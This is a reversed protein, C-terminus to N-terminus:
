HWTITNKLQHIKLHFLRMLDTGQALLNDVSVPQNSLSKYQVNMRLNNQVNGTTDFIPTGTMSLQTFMVGECKNIVTFSGEPADIKLQVQYVPRNTQGHILKSNNLQYDFKLEKSTVDDGAFRAIAMLCFATTQTSYWRDSSLRDAITKM